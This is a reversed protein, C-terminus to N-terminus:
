RTQFAKVEADVEGIDSAKLRRRVDRLLEAAAEEEQTSALTLWYYAKRDDPAVGEGLAYMRGLFLQAKSHGDNAAKEFLTAAKTLDKEVGEGRYYLRGLDFDAAEDGAQKFLEAARAPDRRVGVGFYYMYGLNRLADKNGHAAAASLLEYAKKPDARVGRGDSYLRALNRMARDNGQEASKEYWQSAKLYDKDAGGKGEEHYVGVIRQADAHGAQAALGFWVFAQKPDAPVGLGEDYIRGMWYQAEADDAEALPKLEAIAKAYDKAELAAVGAQLDAHAPSAFAVVAALILAFRM